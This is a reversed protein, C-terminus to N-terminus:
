AKKLRRRFDFWADMYGFVALASVLVVNLVPLLLYTAVVPVLSMRKEAHMWHVLAMGQLWFVGFLATAVSDLLVNQALSSGILALVFLSAIVKGFSFDCFRGFVGAKGPLQQFVYNGVLLCGTVVAWMGIAVSATIMRAVAAPQAKILAIQEPTGSQRFMELLVNMEAEWFVIASPGFIDFAVIGTVVIIVSLQMTLTLSRTSGLMMALFLVPLCIMAVSRVALAFPMGVIANAAIAAVAAILTVVVATQMGRALAVVVIAVGALPHM